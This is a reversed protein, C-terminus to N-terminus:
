ALSALESAFEMEVLIIVHDGPELVTEGRPNILSQDRTIAGIVFTGEIEGVLDEIPKGVLASNESLELELVEARDNELVAINEAVSEYTFRIIEEATV